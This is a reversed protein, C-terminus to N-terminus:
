SNEHCIKDVKTEAINMDPIPFIILDATTSLDGDFEKVLLDRFEFYKNGNLLQDQIYLIWEEWLSVYMNGSNDKILVKNM